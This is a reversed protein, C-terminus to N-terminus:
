LQDVVPELKKVLQKKARHIRSEVASTSIKMIVSIDRYSFSEYHHLILPIRYKPALSQLAKLVIATREKQEMASDAADPGSQGFLGDRNVGESGIDAENTNMVRMWKFRKEHKIQNLVHNVAIAHIWTYIESRQQFTDLNRYIRIFIDQTLDRATEENATMRYVLNLIRGAYAQYIEEFTM